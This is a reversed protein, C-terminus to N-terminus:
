KRVCIRFFTMGCQSENPKKGRGAEIHTKILKLLFVGNFWDPEEHVVQTSKKRLAQTLEYNEKNPVFIGQEVEKHASQIIHALSETSPAPYPGTQCPNSASSWSWVIKYGFVRAGFSWPAGFSQLQLEAGSGVIKYGFVGVEFHWPAGFSQLQPQFLSLIKFCRKQLELVM